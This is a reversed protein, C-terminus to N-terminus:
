GAQGEAPGANNSFVGNTNGDPAGRVLAQTGAIGGAGPLKDLVVPQGLAKALDNQAARTLQLRPIAPM